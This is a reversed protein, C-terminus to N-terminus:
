DEDNPSDVRPGRRLDDPRIIKAIAKADAGSAGHHKALWQALDNDTPWPLDKARDAECKQRAIELLRQLRTQGSANAPVAGRPFETPLTWGMQLAWDAFETLRVVSTSKLGPAEIIRVAKLAAGLHSEAIRLREEVRARADGYVNPIV